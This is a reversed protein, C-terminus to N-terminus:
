GENFAILTIVSYVRMKVFHCSEHAIFVGHSRWFVPEFDKNEVAYINEFCRELINM